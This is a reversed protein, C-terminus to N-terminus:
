SYLSLKENDLNAYKSHQPDEGRLMYWGGALVRADFYRDFLVVPLESEGAETM